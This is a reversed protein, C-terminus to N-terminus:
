DILPVVESDPEPVYPCWVLRHITDEAEREGARMVEVLRESATGNPQEVVKYVFLNGGSDVIGIVVEDNSHSFALDVVPGVM